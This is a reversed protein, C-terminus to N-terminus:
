HIGLGRIIEFDTGPHGPLSVRRLEIAASM